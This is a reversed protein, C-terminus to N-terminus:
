AACVEPFGCGSGTKEFEPLNFGGAGSRKPEGACVSLMRAMRSFFRCRLGKQAVLWTKHRAPM